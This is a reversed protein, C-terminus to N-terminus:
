LLKGPGVFDYEDREALCEPRAEGDGRECPRRLDHVRERAAPDEVVPRLVRIRRQERDHALREIEERGFRERLELAQCRLEYGAEALRDGVGARRREHLVDPRHELDEEQGPSGLLDLRDAVRAVERAVDVAFTEAGEGM